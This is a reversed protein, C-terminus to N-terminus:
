QLTGMQPKVPQGTDDIVFMSAIKDYPVHFTQHRLCGQSRCIDCWTLFNFDKPVEFEFVGGDMISIRIKM